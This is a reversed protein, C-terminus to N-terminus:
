TTARDSCQDRMDTMLSARLRRAAGGTGGSRDSCARQLHGPRHGLADVGIGLWHPGATMPLGPRRLRGGPACALAPWFCFLGAKKGEQCATGCTEGATSNVLLGRPGQCLWPGVDLSGTRHAEPGYRTGSAPVLPAPTSPCWYLRGVLREDTTSGICLGSREVVMRDQPGLVSAQGKAKTPTAAVIVV